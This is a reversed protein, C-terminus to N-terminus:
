IRPSRGSVPKVNLVTKNSTIFSPEEADHTEQSTQPLMVGCEVHQEDVAEPLTLLLSSKDGVDNRAVMRAFLEIEHIESKMVVGVYTIWEEDCIPSMTKMRPAMARGSILEVKLDSKVVRM